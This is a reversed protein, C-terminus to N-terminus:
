SFSIETGSNYLFQPPSLCIHGYCVMQYYLYSPLPEFHTPGWGVGGEGKGMEMKSLSFHLKSLAFFFLLLLTVEVLIYILSSYM